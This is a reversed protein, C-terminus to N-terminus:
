GHTIAATLVNVAQGASIAVSDLVIDESGTGVTLGTVVDNDASDRIRAEAATGSNDASPDSLPTGAFTLVGGSITAAPDDLTVTALVSAMGASGIELKGPSVGADIADLVVQLRDNKITTIYTVAM